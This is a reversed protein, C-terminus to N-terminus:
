VKQKKTAGYRKLEPHEEQCFQLAETFVMGSVNTESYSICVEIGTTEPRSERL